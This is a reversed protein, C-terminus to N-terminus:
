ERLKWAKTSTKPTGLRVQSFDPSEKLLQATILIRDDGEALPESQSPALREQLRAAKGM